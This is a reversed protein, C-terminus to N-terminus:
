PTASPSVIRFSREVADNVAPEIAPSMSICHAIGSAFDAESWEHTRLRLVYVKATVGHLIENIWKMGEVKDADSISGDSWVSRVAVTLQHALVEYFHLRAEHPLSGIAIAYDFSM